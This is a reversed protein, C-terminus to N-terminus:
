LQRIRPVAHNDLILAHIAWVLADVRDPSHSLLATGMMFGAGMEGLRSGLEDLEPEATLLLTRRPRALCKHLSRSTFCIISDELFRWEMDVM